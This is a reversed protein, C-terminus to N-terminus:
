GVLAKVEDETLGLKALKAMASQKAMDKDQWATLEAMQMEALKTEVVQKDYDIMNEDKDFLELSDVDNGRVVATNPYASYVAEHLTTV